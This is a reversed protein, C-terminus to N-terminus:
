QRLFLKVVKSDSEPPGGDFKGLGPIGPYQACWGSPLESYYAWSTEEIPMSGGAGLVDKLTDGVHIGEPTKFKPDQTSIYCIREGDNTALFFKIGFLITECGPAFDASSIAYLVSPTPTCPMKQGITPCNNSQYPSRMTCSYLGITSLILIAVFRYIM